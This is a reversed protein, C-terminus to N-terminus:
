FLNKIRKKPNRFFFFLLKGELMNKITVSQSAVEVPVVFEKKDSSELKVTAMTRKKKQHFLYLFLFFEFKPKKPGLVVHMIFWGIV